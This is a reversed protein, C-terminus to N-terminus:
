FLEYPTSSWCSSELTPLKRFIANSNSKRTWSPSREILANRYFPRHRTWSWSSIPASSKWIEPMNCASQVTPYNTMERDHTTYEYTREHYFLVMWVKRPLFLHCGRVLSSDHSDLSWWTHHLPPMSIKPCKPRKGVMNIKTKEKGTKKNTDNVQIWAKFVAITLM